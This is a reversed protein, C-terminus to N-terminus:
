LPFLEDALRSVILWKELKCSRDIGLDMVPRCRVQWALKWITLADNVIITGHRRRHTAEEGPSIGLFLSVQRRSGFSSM